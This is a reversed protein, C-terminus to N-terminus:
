PAYDVFFATEGSTESGVYTGNHTGSPDLAFVYQTGATLPLGSLASVYWQGNAGKPVTVPTGTALVGAKQGNVVSYIKPTFVQDSGAGRAFFAFDNATGSATATEIWSLETTTYVFTSTFGTLTDGLQAVAPGPQVVSTPASSVAVSGSANSGTVQLRLTSGVDAVTPLYTPNTAGGIVSCSNGSSDCRTWQLALTPPPSANWGGAFGSLVRGTVATGPSGAPGAVTVSPLLDNVPPAAPQAGPAVPTFPTQESVDGPCSALDAGDSNLIQHSDQYDTVSGNFNIHVVPVVGSNIHCAEGFLDSTDFNFGSTMTLVLHGGPVLTQPLQPATAGGWLNFHSPSSGGGFDVTVSNVSVSSAGNNTVEIAGSDYGSGGNNPGHTSCCQAPEGIFTTNASGSWPTLGSTSDAYGLAVAVGAPPLSTVVQTVTLNDLNVYQNSGATSDFWVKLTHAGPALSAQNLTLTTWTSWNATAAFAQNAVLVSGDLEIKRHAIGNGSSYRLALNTAGGAVNFSFTVFQGQTGWCCIYPPNQAGPWVTETPLNTASTGAAITQSVATVPVTPASTASAGAGGANSATVTATITSGVDAAALVYTSSTAGGIPTCAPSCRNWVFAFSTPSNTWTGTLVALTQGQVPTGSIVPVATNVPALPVVTATPASTSPVGPGSGNAATVTATITAGADGAALVYTSSTAGSIATCAPSCQNWAYTFSTPSNTWTGTSVSLAQGQVPTGSIVPVASNVPVPPLVAATAASTAPLGDGGANSATVTATITAGVDGASLLYTSGTAGNIAVCAPSCQQWSYAFSTPAYTWTGTSVALTQGQVATGSIVPLVTNVPVPPLTVVGTPASVAPLSDGGANSATVTATITSGVDAAAPVYTSSTAGSIVTCGPSCQEWFYTFSTPSNTWTGTSVALTQGQAATGSIVPAATNVPPLPLVTVTAASTAPLSDGGANSATVTATVTSGVDAAALVYSSSTAGGIPTCAPSCRNWVYAFSTPSNTWTGASVALTQGQVATGSIVPVATNVPPPPLVTGTPASAAPLSDGGANSATVTATITSGVDAAAVVFTSSTAGSIVTCGPSCQEWFYTFSTPSNTWTGTSVALTQGQVPTGSIVPAVTNVPVPPLTVIGTPASTAPAGAGGANSATVTATITSGVDAAALVYTSSTAGGIASCAPSCRNWVYAFSTPNNTWTGASVALTQGQVATGSIMPVATNVPPPPVLQTVTLNDLNIYLKSGATSDFWVKLTHAGPALSAQNLTLTTWTSWNATAAFAQNAVLVSGDLEIKRYAVGSGASYRLGLNTAGGTVNFSFTVFQGQTGWCCIYPPNQAGPWVTETPLNTASTGAAITQSISFPATVTATPASTASAGAGGANSATVTATVTSGVDAAALVYTSSTAGGIPTCAPSCRNWVFAFSTPSNTWTGASVALTQGQVPTGSIVPVATNVPPPVAIPNVSVAGFDVDSRHAALVISGRSLDGSTQLLWASPETTGTKWVKFKFDSGGTANDTVQAKFTYAVGLTLQTGTTDALLTQEPHTDTNAYIEVRRATGASNDYLFAAPFPHGIRPQDSTVVGHLNDTAGQWGAILGVAAGDPDMSNITVQATVQYQAWTSAQGLTVLRDYGIDSNRITGDPQISWHGDAVQAISNINGGATSWDATYPLAWPGGNVKTVTVDATSSNGLNDIATLHVTNPGALLSAYDLEVNFEGPEVLRVGNEGMSLPSGPGGNLSYALSAMGAPDSVDGLVNVWQQPQGNAGFTQQSGYWVNIVPTSPATPWAVGDETAPPAYSNVFYDVKATFAPSSAGGFNGGFVGAHAVTLTQTLTAAATWHLGDYSYGFSWGNGSRAVRLVISPKNYIEFSAVTTVTTGSVAKVVFATQFYNQVIDAHVYHTSDQEVIVGQEQFQQTVASDFKADISFDANPLAQMLRPAGDGSSSPDHQSGAPVSIVAHQGDMSQVADGSPNVFSWTSTNLTASSFDDNTAATTVGSGGDEPVIPSATNFFYDVSATWAPPPSGANGAYPGMDAVTMTYSFSVGTLWTVGDQSYTLLWTNATRKVRMWFPQAANGLTQALKVSATGGSVSAAFLVNSSGTSLVDFRLLTSADQEVVIGQDQYKASGMSEFKTEVEFDSNAVPQVVRLARSGGTWLDHDTGAPLSMVLAHGNLSVSGDGVPNEVSWLSTNLSSAHFDDSVPAGAAASAPSAPLVAIVALAVASSALQVFRVRM